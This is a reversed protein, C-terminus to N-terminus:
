RAGAGLAAAFRDGAEATEQVNPSDQSWLQNGTSTLGGAAGYILNLGGAALTGISEAPVGVALDDRGDGNLDDAVLAAGFSDGAEATESIGASNQSWFQNGTASLGGGFGLIVNVGGATATTGVSEGPAGAALDDDGDGDLDRTTLAAGLRDGAEAADKVDISNQSWLQNGTDTLGSGSGYLVNVAGASTTGITESPVGVAVDDRADANLDGAALAAGFSDGAEATESIGASNQQWVQNGASSLGAGSGYIVSVAGASTTGITESPVGVAVDDRSDGNLDGAALATGFSDGSESAEALGASDQNFLQNGSSTLGSGSGYIVNVAGAAGAAGVSEGPAGATLDDDGDGDLDGGALATGLRDGSEATDAIGTSDQNYAQSGAASLGSPSGYLIQVLGADAVAGLDEGPSGIALDAFGDRNFDGTALAAGFQDAGESPEGGGVSGQTWLQNGTDTLGSGSGYLVNVAGADNASGVDELPVGIARDAFGDGNFDGKPPPGLTPQDPATPDIRVWRAVSPVGADNLLFLMYYGPPAVAASPPAVVDVGQGGVRNLVQLEVHRQNMDFAHTTADPAMLVARDIGASQSHIGFADGFRVAGPAQDIVPRPGKFLYPPSYIEGNDTISFAGSQELPNHDDGASFVRGDPLLVATSHYTRDEQQAPGLLWSNSDPDFVEIQRARGDAYTVYGGAAGIDPDGGDQYGSGGGVEVMSGDPLLVTNANARAVNLPAGPKWTAPTARADITESSATAPFFPGPDLNRDFGGLTTVTDSGAPGGPRRVANGAIRSRSMTALREDWTFTSTDLTATLAKAPGTVIVDDGFTFTRPYLGLGNRFASPEQVVTGQGGPTAPPNFVEVSNTMVGGPPQEGLGSLIVTRGDPLLVQGPYWRGQAMNPQRTWTETFPNFTFIMPLGAFGTYADNNFTNGYILNGGAAIVEGDALLTQGSCFIPAKVPPQGGSGDVDVVPPDVEEFAGPGTGLSPTWLAAEGTNPRVGSGAPVPPRGWFLVKGTPLVVTHIAYNPLSFPAQTWAGVESPPGAAAPAAVGESSLAIRGSGLKLDGRAARRYLARLAAHEAAHEPGLEATEIARIDSETAGAPILDDAGHAAANAAFSLALCASVALTWLGNRLWAIAATV